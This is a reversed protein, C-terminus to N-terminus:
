NNITTASTSVTRIIYSQEKDENCKRGFLERLAVQYDQYKVLYVFPNITCNSFAMIVGFKNFFGNWNVDYGFNYM